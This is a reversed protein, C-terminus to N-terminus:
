RGRRFSGHARVITPDAVDPIEVFPEAEVLPSVLRRVERAASPGRRDPPRRASRPCAPPTTASARSSSCGGPPPWSGSSRGPPTRRARARPPGPAHLDRRRPRLPGGLRRPARVPRGGRLARPEGPPHTPGVRDAAPSVDFALCTSAGRPSSSPTTASAAAWWRRRAAARSRAPARSGPPSRRTRPWTPGRSGRRTAARRATSPRSGRRPPAPRSRRPRWRASGRGPPTSAFPRDCSEAM